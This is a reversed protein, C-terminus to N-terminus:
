VEGGQELIRLGAKKALDNQRADFSLFLDASVLVACAVHLIDMTRCGLLPTEAALRRFEAMLEARNIDPVFYFGKTKRMQFLSQQHTAESELLEERFVKLQLANHFEMELIDWVPLPDFQTTVTEHVLESGDERVYLKLFASTDLYLM